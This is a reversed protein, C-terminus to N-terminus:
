ATGSFVEAALFAASCGPAHQPLSEFYPVAVIRGSRWFSPLAELAGGPARRGQPGGHEALDPGLARAADVGLARVLVPEGEGAALAVTFRKDWVRRTGPQLDLEPLGDRGAERWILVPGDGLREIRCGGLTAARRRHGHESHRGADMRQSMQEVLAEIQSLRAPPSDGGNAELLAAFTRVQLEDPVCVFLAPDIEAFLGGHLRTLRCAVDALVAVVAARARSLRRTSREIQTASIGLGGLVELAERVRVREFDQSTNSPDERWALGRALLTGVLRAKGVQLLPRLITWGGSSGGSQCSPQVTEQQRMGSLGDLGSGRALRMLFTEAQDDAHHATVISRKAPLARERAERELCDNMLRYRAARATAQLGSAPKPGTWDLKMHALGLRAAERAVWAAEDAAESRLGHDVTLVIPPAVGTDGRDARWEAVLHMLAISDAGGSVALALPGVLIRDFVPAIEELALPSPRGM